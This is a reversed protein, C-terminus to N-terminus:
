PDLPVVFAGCNPKLARKPPIEAPECVSCILTTLPAAYASPKQRSLEEDLACGAVAGPCVVVLTLVKLGPWCTRWDSVNGGPVIARETTASGPAPTGMWSTSTSGRPLTRWVASADEPNATM